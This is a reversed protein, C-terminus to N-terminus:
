RVGQKVQKNSSKDKERSFVRKTLLLNDGCISSCEVTRSLEDM